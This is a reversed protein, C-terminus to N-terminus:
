LIMKFFLKNSYIILIINVFGDYSRNIDQFLKIDLIFNYFIFIIGFKLQHLLSLFLMVDKIVDDLIIITDEKAFLFVLLYINDQYAYDYFIIAM